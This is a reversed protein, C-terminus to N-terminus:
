SRVEPLPEAGGVVKKGGKRSRTKPVEKPGPGASESGGETEFEGPEYTKARTRRMRAETTGVSAGRLLDRVQTLLSAILEFHLSDKMMACEVLGTHVLTQQEFILTVADGRGPLVSHLKWGLAAWVHLAEGVSGKRVEITHYEFVPHREVKITTEM